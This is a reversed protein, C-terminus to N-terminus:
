RPFNNSVSLMINVTFSPLGLIRSGVVFPSLLFAFLSVNGYVYEIIDFSKIFHSNSTGYM